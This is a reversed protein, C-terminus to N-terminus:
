KIGPLGAQLCLLNDTQTEDLEGAAAMRGDDFSGAHCALLQVGQPFGMPVRIRPARRFLPGPAELASRLRGTQSWPEARLRRVGGRM